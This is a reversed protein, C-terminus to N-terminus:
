EYLKTKLFNILDKEHEIKLDIELYDIGSRDKESIRFYDKETTIINANILKAKEKIKKLENTSYEHHDAFIFEEVINFKNQLLINSFNKPNGIGSFAIFKDRLNFKELNLPISKSKFVKIKSSYKKLIELINDTDNEADKLFIADYKKISSLKERLPGSPILCGNGIWNRGDFCVVKIDYDIKNDQLGDDFIVLDSKQNIANKLIERRSKASILKTKKELITKEDYHESYFKKGTVVKLNMNNLIDFLKITTPTKGTGGIYINGVCITKINLKKKTKFDLLLNNIRLPITLPSVLFSVFNPKQYDWFKPKKFNM